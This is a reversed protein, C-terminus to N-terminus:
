SEADSKSVGGAMNAAQAATLLQHHRPQKKKLIEGVPGGPLYGPHKVLLKHKPLRESNSEKQPYIPLIM